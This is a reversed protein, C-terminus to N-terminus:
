VELQQLLQNLRDRIAAEQVIEVRGGYRQRIVEVLRDFEKDIYLLDADSLQSWEKKLLPKLSLWHDEMRNPTHRM